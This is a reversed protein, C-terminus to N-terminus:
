AQDKFVVIYENPIVQTTDTGMTFPSAAGPSVAQDNSPPANNQVISNSDCGTLCAVMAILSIVYFSPFRKM